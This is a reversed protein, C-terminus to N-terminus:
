TACLNASDTRDKKSRESARGEARCCSVLLESVCAAQLQRAVAIHASAQRTPPCCRPWDCRQTERPEVREVKGVRAREFSSSRQPVHACRPERWVDGVDRGESIGPWVVHQRALVTARNFGRREGARAGRDLRAGARRAAGGEGRRASRTSACPVGSAPFGWSWCWCASCRRM